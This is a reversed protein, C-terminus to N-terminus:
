REEEHPVFDQLPAMYILIMSSGALEGISRKIPCERLSPKGFLYSGKTIQPLLIRCIRAEPKWVLLYDRPGLGQHTAVDKPVSSFLAGSPGQGSARHKEWCGLQLCLSPVGDVALELCANSM